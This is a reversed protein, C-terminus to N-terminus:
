LLADGWWWWPAALGQARDRHDRSLVEGPSPSSFLRWVGPSRFFLLSSPPPLPSPPPLLLHCAHEDLSPPPPLLSALPLSHMLMCMCERRPPVQSGGTRLDFREFYFSALTTDGVGRHVSYVAAGEPRADTTHASLSNLPPIPYIGSANYRYHASEICLCCPLPISVVNLEDYVVVPRDSDSHAGYGGAPGTTFTCEAAGGM